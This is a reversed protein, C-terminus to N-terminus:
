DAKTPRIRRATAVAPTGGGGSASGDGVVVPQETRRAILSALEGAAGVAYTFVMPGLGPVALLVVFPLGFGLTVAWWQEHLCAVAPRDWRTTLPYILERTAMQASFLVGIAALAIESALPFAMCLGLVLLAPYQLSGAVSKGM